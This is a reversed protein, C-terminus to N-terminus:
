RRKLPHWRAKGKMDAMNEVQTGITLHKPNFCSPNDCLHLVVNSEIHQYNPIRHLVASVRHVMQSRGRHRCVGYGQGNCARTWIWCGNSAVTRYQNLLEITYVQKTIAM